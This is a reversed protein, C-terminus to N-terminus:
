EEFLRRSTRDDIRRLVAPTTWGVARLIRNEQLLYALADREQRDLGGILVGFWMQLPSMYIVPRSNVDCAQFGTSRKDDITRHSLEGDRLGIRSPNWELFTRSCLFCLHTRSQASEFLTAHGKVNGCLQGCQEGVNV